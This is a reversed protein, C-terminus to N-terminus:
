IINSSINPEETEAAKQTLLYPVLANALIPYPFVKKRGFGISRSWYSIASSGPFLFHASTELISASLYGVM